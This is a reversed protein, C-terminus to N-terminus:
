RGELGVEAAGSALSDESIQHEVWGVVSLLQLFSLINDFPHPDIKM